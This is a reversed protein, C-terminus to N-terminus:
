PHKRKRYQWLGAAALIVALLIGAIVPVAMHSGGSESGAAGSDSASVMNGSGDGEGSGSDASIGEGSPNGGSISADADARNQNEEPAASSGGETQRGADGSGAPNSGEQAAQETGSKKRSGPGSKAASSGVAANSKGAATSGSAASGSGSGNGSENEGKGASQGSTAAAGATSGDAPASSSAGSDTGGVQLTLTGASVAKLETADQKALIVQNLTIPIDGGASESVKMTLVACDYNEQFVHGEGYGLVMGSDPRFDGMTGEPIDVSQFELADHNYELMAQFAAVEAEGADPWGNNHVQVALQITDGPNVAVSSPRLSMTFGEESASVPAPFVTLLLLLMGAVSMKSINISNQIWKM